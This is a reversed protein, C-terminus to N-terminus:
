GEPMSALSLLSQLEPDVHFVGILFPTFKFVLPPPTLSLADAFLFPITTSLHLPPLVQSHSLHLPHLAAYGLWLPLLRPPRVDLVRCLCCADHVTYGHNPGTQQLLSGREESAPGSFGGTGPEFGLFFFHIMVQKGRGKEEEERTSRGVM